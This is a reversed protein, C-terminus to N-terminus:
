EEEFILVYGTPIETTEWHRIQRHSSFFVQGPSLEHKHHNVSFSGKGSAIITIDYYSLQHPYGENIYKELWELRMLDILLEDGYKTKFFNYLKVM